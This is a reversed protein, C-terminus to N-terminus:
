NIMVIGGKITTQGSGKLETMSGEVSAKVKAKASVNLGEAKVDGESSALSIGQAADIAIKGKASITFDKPTEFSIGSSNMEVKNQHQDEITISGNEDSLTIKNGAPTELIINKKADQFVLKLQNKTVIAKTQNDGDPTFPPTKAKSYLMGLIVPYSPDNNLFGLIVEDGTEPMFFTGAKNTAYLNSLRAWVGDNGEKIVPIEVLVRTEDDPDSEIQRVTGIYLGNIGPIMGSAAPLEINQRTESFWDPSLGVSIETIWNGDSVEHRVGSVFAEGTFYSALQNIKILSNPQITAIGQCTISGRIRALRSKLLRANAWTKLAPEDLPAPVHMQFPDGSLAGALQRGDTASNGQKNVAPETSNASVLSQNSIDWSSCEVSSVQHRADVSLDTKIIDVGFALSVAADGGVLPDAVLLKNNMTTVVKGNWEARTLIFDWDSVNYQIIEKHTPKTDAIDASLDYHNAIKSIIDKDSLDRYYNSRRNVTMKIAKDACTVVLMSHEKESIRVGTKVIIGEFVTENRQHYGFNIKISKGPEFKEHFAFDQKAPNGDLICIEASALRNLERNIEISFVPIEDGIVSGDILIDHSVVDTKQQGPSGNNSPPM